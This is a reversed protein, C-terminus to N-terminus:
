RAPPAFPAILCAFNQPLQGTLEVQELSLGTYDLATQNLFDPVGDPDGRWVLNPISDIVLRLHDQSSKIKDPAM